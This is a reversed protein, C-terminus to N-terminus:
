HNGSILFGILASTFINIEFIFTGCHVPAKGSKLKLSDQCHEKLGFASSFDHCFRVPTSATAYSSFLLGNTCITISHIYESLFAPINRTEVSVFTCNFITM